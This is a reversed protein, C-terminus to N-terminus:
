SCDAQFWKVNLTKGWSHRSSGPTQLVVSTEADIPRFLCRLGGSDERVRVKKETGCDRDSMMEIKLGHMGTTKQWKCFAIPSHHTDTVSSAFPTIRDSGERPNKAWKPEKKKNHCRTLLTACLLCCCIQLINLKKKKTTTPFFTSRLIWCHASKVTHCQESCPNTLCGSSAKAAPFGLAQLYDVHAPQVYLCGTSLLERIVAQYGLSM